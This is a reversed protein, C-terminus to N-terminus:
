REQPGGDVVARWRISRRFSRVVTVICVGTISTPESSRTAATHRDEIERDSRKGIGSKGFAQERECEDRPRKPEDARVDKILYSDLRENAVQWSKASSMPKRPVQRLQIMDPINSKMGLRLLSISPCENNM